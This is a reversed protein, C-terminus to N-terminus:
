QNILDKIQQISEKVFKPNKLDNTFTIATGGVENYIYAIADINVLIPAGHPATLQIFKKM